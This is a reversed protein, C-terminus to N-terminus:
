QSEGCLNEFLMLHIAKALLSIKVREGPRLDNRRAVHISLTLTIVVNTPVDCAKQAIAYESLITFDILFAPSDIKVKAVLIMILAICCVNALQIM